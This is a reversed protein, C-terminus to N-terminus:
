QTRVAVLTADDKVATDGRFKKLEEQLAALLHAAGKHAHPKVMKKLGEIGLRKGKQEMETVGDTFFLFGDAGN